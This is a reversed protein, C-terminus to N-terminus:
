VCIKTILEICSNALAINKKCCNKRFGFGYTVGLFCVGAKQAAELDNATDGVMLCRGSELVGVTSMCIRIVNAKKLEGKLDTGAICDFLQTFNFHELLRKSYDERKNTAVGIKIGSERILRLAEYIGEYPMAEFLYLDKYVNRWATALEWAQAESLAYHRQFSDQIPPGIFSKQEEGTLPPLCFKEIVYDTARTIGESTDLLTGDLDFFVADYRM